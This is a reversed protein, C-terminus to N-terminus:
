KMNQIQTKWNASITNIMDQHDKRRLRYMEAWIWGNSFEQDATLGINFLIQHKIHLLQEQPYKFVMWGKKEFDRWNSLILASTNAKKGSVIEPVQYIDRPIKCSQHEAVPTRRFMLQFFYWILKIFDM